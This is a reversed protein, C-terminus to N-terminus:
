KRDINWRKVLWEMMMAPETFLVDPSPDFIGNSQSAPFWNVGVAYIGAARAATIDAQSDGVYLTHEPCAQLQQMAHIIGEPHPKHNTVEDGAIVIQFYDNLKLAELSLDASRRGKGTIIGMQIGAHKLAELMTLLPAPTELGRHEDVYKDYFCQLAEEYKEPQIKDKIIGAEPPGFLEMIQQDSYEEQLFTYFTHRMATFIAPLTDAITGDFDFLVTYADSKHM